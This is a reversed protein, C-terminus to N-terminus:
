HESLDAGDESEDTAAGETEKVAAARHRRNEAPRLGNDCAVFVTVIALLDCLENTAAANETEGLVLLRYRGNAVLWEALEGAFRWLRDRHTVVVEEIDGQHVRDL